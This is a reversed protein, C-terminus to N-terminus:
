TLLTAQIDIFLTSIQCMKRNRTYKLQDCM